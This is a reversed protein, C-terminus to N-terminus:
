EEEDEAGGKQTFHQDQDDRSFSDEILFYFGLAILVTSLLQGTLTTYNIFGFGEWAVKVGMVMFMIAGAYKFLKRREETIGFAIMLFAFFIISFEVPFTDREKSDATVEFGVSVSGGLGETSSCDVLYAYEGLRTFNNGKVTLEWDEGSVDFPISMEQIIHVGDNMFLHFNCSTTSNTLRIGNSTNFVHFNYQFDKNQQQITIKVFDITLGEDVFQTFIPPQATVLTTVLILLFIFKIYPKM